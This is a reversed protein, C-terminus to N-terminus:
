QLSGEFACARLQDADRRIVLRGAVHLRALRSRILDPPAEILAGLEALTKEGSAVLAVLAEDFEAGKRVWVTTIQRLREWWWFEDVRARIEQRTMLVVSAGHAAAIRRLTRLSATPSDGKTVVVYDVADDRRTVVFTATARCEVGGLVATVVTPKRTISRTTTSFRALVWAEFHLEQAFQLPQVGFPDHARIQARPFERYREKRGGWHTVVSHDKQDKM